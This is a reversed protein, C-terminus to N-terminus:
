RLWSLSFLHGATPHELINNKGLLNVITSLNPLRLRCAKAAFAKYIQNFSLDCKNFNSAIQWRSWMLQKGQAGNRTTNVIAIHISFFLYVTAKQRGRLDGRMSDDGLLIFQCGIFLGCFKREMVTSKATSLFEFIWGRTISIFFLNKINM